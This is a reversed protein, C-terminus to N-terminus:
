YCPNPGGCSSCHLHVEVFRPKSCEVSPCGSPRGTPILKFTSLCLPMYLCGVIYSHKPLWVFPFINM